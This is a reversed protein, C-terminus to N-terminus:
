INFKQLYDKISDEISPLHWLIWRSLAGATLPNNWDETMQHRLLYLRKHELAEEPTLKKSYTTYDEMGASGFGIHKKTNTKTNIFTAIYKHKGDEARQINLLKYKNTKSM